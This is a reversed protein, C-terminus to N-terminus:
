FQITDNLEYANKLVEDGRERNKKGIHSCYIDDFFCTEYGLEAYRHSFEMEFHRATENFEGVTSFMSVDILSPNLSFHPWYCSSRAGPNRKYFGAEEESGKPYYEHLVYRQNNKTRKKFGGALNLFEVAAEEAYNRNVIVQKYNEAEDLIELASSILPKRQIFSWDDEIHFLYDHKLVARERIINMSNAHGRQEENKFIFNFFPYLRIMEERDEKSSNDDVCIWESILSADMCANMFSNVTRQFLDLRKCSTISFCISADKKM